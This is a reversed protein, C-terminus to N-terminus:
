SKLVPLQFLADYNREPSLKILGFRHLFAYCALFEDLGEAVLRRYIRGNCLIGIYFDQSLPHEEFQSVFDSITADADPLASEDILYTSRM